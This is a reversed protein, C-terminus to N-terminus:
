QTAPPRAHVALTSSTARAATRARSARSAVALVDIFARQTAAAARQPGLEAFLNALAHAAARDPLGALADAALQALSLTVGPTELCLRGLWRACAASNRPDDVVLLVLALADEIGIHQLETAAAWAIHSNGTAIARRLRSYPSGQSTVDLGRVYTRM